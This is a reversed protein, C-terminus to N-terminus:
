GEYHIMIEERTDQDLSLHLLSGSHEKLEISTVSLTRVIDSRNMIFGNAPDGNAMRHFAVISERDPEPNESLWKEFLGKRWERVKPPYLTVSSWIRPEDFPLYAISKEDGDWILQLLMHKEYILLTFPAIGSFDSKLLFHNTDEATAAQLVVLGRSMRYPPEPIFPIFGGNLLCVTRGNDALAIWSGGSTEDMPFHVANWDPTHTSVLGTAQRGPSEDRNSTIFLRDGQPIFTVTCM